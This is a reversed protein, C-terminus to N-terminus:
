PRIARCSGYGHRSSGLNRRARSFKVATQQGEGHGQGDRHNRTRHHRRVRARISGATTRPVAQQRGGPRESESSYRGSIQGSGKVLKQGRSGRCRVIIGPYRHRRAQAERISGGNNVAVGAATRRVVAIGPQTAGFDPGSVERAEAEPLRPGRRRGAPVPTAIPTAEITGRRGWPDARRTESQIAFASKSLYAAMARQYRYFADRLYEGELYSALTLQYIARGLEDTDKVVLAMYREIDKLCGSGILEAAAAAAVTRETDAEKHMSRVRSNHRREEAVTGEAERGRAEALEGIEVARRHRDEEIEGRAARRLMNLKDRLRTAERAMAETGKDGVNAAGADEIGDATVVSITLARGNCATGPRKARGRM